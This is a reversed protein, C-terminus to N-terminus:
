GSLTVVQGLAWTHHWHQAGPVVQDGVGDVYLPFTTTAVDTHRVRHRLIRPSIDSYHQWVSAVAHSQASCLSTLDTGLGLLWVALFM